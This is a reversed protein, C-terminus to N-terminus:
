ASLIGDTQFAGVAFNINDSPDLPDDSGDTRAAPTGALAIPLPSAPQLTGLGLDSTLIESLASGRIGTEPDLNTFRLGSTNGTIPDLFTGSDLFSAGFVIVQDFQTQAQTNSHVSFLLTSACLAGLLKSTKM